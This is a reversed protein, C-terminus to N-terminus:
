TQFRMVYDEAIETLDHVLAAASDYGDHELRDRLGALTSVLLIVVIEGLDPDSPPPGLPYPEGASGPRESDEPPAEEEPPAPLGVPWLPRPSTVAPAAGRGNRGGGARTTM